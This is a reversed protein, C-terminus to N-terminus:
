YWMCSCWKTMRLVRMVGHYDSGDHHGDSSGSYGSGIVIVSHSDWGGCIDRGENGDMVM